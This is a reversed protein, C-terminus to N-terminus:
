NEWVSVEPIILDLKDWDVGPSTLLREPLIHIYYATDEFREHGMYARLYPLMAYLNRGEDIWKHLVTSAFCHRLDYARFNPLENKPIDPNAAVWCRIVKDRFAQASLVNGKANVFFYESDGVAISRTLDYNKMLSLMDDSMVVIREKNKKTNTILIEGTTLSINKRRLCRCENPRLGCSYILKLMTEITRNIFPENRLTIKSAAEFLHVLEKKTPVYPVFPPKRPVYDMPLVYSNGGMYKAFGRIASAKNEFGKRGNAIEDAFWGRVVEKSLETEYPFSRCCYKDFFRLSKFHSKSFGLSKRFTLYENIQPAFSSSFEYM